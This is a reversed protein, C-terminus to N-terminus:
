KSSSKTTPSPTKRAPDGVYVPRAFLTGDIRVYAAGASELYTGVFQHTQREVVEVIAGRPGLEGRGPRGVEVLVVDGTAADASRDAPIYIDKM